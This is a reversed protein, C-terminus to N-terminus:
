QSQITTGSGGTREIWGAVYSVICCQVASIARRRSLRPLRTGVQRGAVEVVRKSSQIMVMLIVDTNGM